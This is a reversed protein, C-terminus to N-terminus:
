LIIACRTRLLLYLGVEAMKLAKEIDDSAGYESKYAGSVVRVIPNHRGWIKELASSIEGVTCRSRAAEISLQLLNGLGSEAAKTLAEM